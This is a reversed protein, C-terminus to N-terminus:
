NCGPPSPAHFRGSKALVSYGGDERDVVQHDEAQAGAPQLM